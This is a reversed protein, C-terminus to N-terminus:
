GVGPVKRRRSCPTSKWCMGPAPTRRRRRLGATGFLSLREYILEPRLGAAVERALLSVSGDGGAEAAERELGASRGPHPVLHVPMTWGHADDPNSPAIGVVEVEHGLAAFAHAIARLHLSAGKGDGIRVGTDSCLM